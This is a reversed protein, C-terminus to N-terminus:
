LSSKILYKFGLDAGLLSWNENINRERCTFHSVKNASTNLNPRSSSAGHLATPIANCITSKWVVWLCWGFWGVALHLRSGWMRRRHCHCRPTRSPPAIKANPVMRNQGHGNARTVPSIMMMVIQCPM